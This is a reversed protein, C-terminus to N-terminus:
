RLPTAWVLLVLTALPAVQLDHQGLGWGVLALLLLLLPIAAAVLRAQGTLM